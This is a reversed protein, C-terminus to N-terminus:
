KEINTNLGDIFDNIKARKICQLGVNRCWDELESNPICRVLLDPQNEIGSESINRMFDNKFKISKVCGLRGLSLFAASNVWKPVTISTIPSKPCTKLLMGKNKDYLVNDIVVFKGNNESVTITKLNDAIFAFDTYADVNIDFVSKGLHIHELSTCSDLMENGLVRLSDPTIFSKLSACGKFAGKEICKLKDNFSIDTLNCCGNFAFSGIRTLNKGCKLNTIGSNQFAFASIEVLSDPLIVEKLSSNCFAYTSISTLTDPLVVKEINCKEFASVGIVKVPIDKIYSPINLIKDLDKGSDIVIYKETDPGECIRYELVGKPLKYRM